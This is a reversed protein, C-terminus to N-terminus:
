LLTKLKDTLKDIKESLPKKDQILDCDLFIINARAAHLIEVVESAHRDAIIERVDPQHNLLAHLSVLSDVEDLESMNSFRSASAILDNIWGAPDACETLNTPPLNEM